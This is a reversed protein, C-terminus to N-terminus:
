RVTRLFEGIDRRDAPVAISLTMKTGPFKRGPAQLYEDLQAPTWTQRASAIAASYAYRESGVRRGIVGALSPGIRVEGRKLSHCMACRQQYLRQGRAADGAPAAGSAAATVIGACAVVSLVLNRITKM